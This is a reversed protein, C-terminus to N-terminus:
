TDSMNSIEESTTIDETQTQVETESSVSAKNSALCATVSVSMAAATVVALILLVKKRIM